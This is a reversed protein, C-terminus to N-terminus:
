IHILSLTSYLQLQYRDLNHLRTTWQTTATAMGHCLVISAMLVTISRWSYSLQITSTTRNSYVSSTIWQMTTNTPLQRYHTTPYTIHDMTHNYTSQPISNTNHTTSTSSTTTTTKTTTVPQLRPNYHHFIAAATTTTNRSMNTPRPQKRNNDARFARNKKSRNVNPKLKYHKIQLIANNHNNHFQLQRKYM